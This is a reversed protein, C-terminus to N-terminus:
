DEEMGKQYVVVQNRGSRKARYLAADAKALFEDIETLATPVLSHVGLSLTVHNTVSSYEHMLDRSEIDQRIAEAVDRAQEVGTSPLVITFEEGGFRAILDTARRSSQNLVDAVEKLCDDGKLHGYHDNYSKFEDIDCMIVALPERARACRAIEHRLYRNMYRRNALHTLGDVDVQRQLESNANELAITLEILRSRMQAIREMAKMKAALVKQDIPKALYDDGGAEIGAVIDDASFRASLFIIPAWDDETERIERAAEHGRMIPMVEDMLVLDPRHKRFLEVAERGNEGLIVEHGLATIFSEAIVRDVPSDDVLLVKM